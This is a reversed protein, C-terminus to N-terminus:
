AALRASAWDSKLRRERDAQQWYAEPDVGQSAEENVGDISAPGTMQSAEAQGIVM